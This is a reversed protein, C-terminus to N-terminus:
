VDVRQADGIQRATLGALLEPDLSDAVVGSPTGLCLAALGFFKLTATKLSHPTMIDGHDGSSLWAILGTSPIHTLSFQARSQM